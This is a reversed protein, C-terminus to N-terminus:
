RHTRPPARGPRRLTFAPALRQAGPASRRPMLAPPYVMAALRLVALRAIGVAAAAILMATLGALVWPPPGLVLGAAIDLGHGDPAPLMAHDLTAVQAVHILAAIVLGIVPLHTTSASRPV